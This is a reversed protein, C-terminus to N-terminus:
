HSFSTNRGLNNRILNTDGVIKLPAKMFTLLLIQAPISTLITLCPGNEIKM